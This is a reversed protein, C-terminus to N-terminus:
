ESRNNGAPNSPAGSVCTGTVIPAAPTPPAAWVAFLVFPLLPTLPLAVLKPVSSTACPPRVRSATAAGDDPPAPPTVLPTPVILANRARRLAVPPAPACGAVCPAIDALPDEPPPM